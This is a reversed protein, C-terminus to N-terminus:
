EILREMDFNIFIDSLESEQLIALPDISYQLYNHQNELSAQGTYESKFHPFRQSAPPLGVVNRSEAYMSM